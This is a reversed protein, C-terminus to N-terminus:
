LKWVELATKALGDQRQEIQQDGWSSISKFFDNIKLNSSGLALSKKDAFSKDAAGRNIKANLLTLNGVRYVYEEPDVGSSFDSHWAAPVSQPLVHELNVKKANPDVIEEAGPTQRALHNLGKCRM